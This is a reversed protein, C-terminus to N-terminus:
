REQRWAVWDERDDPDCATMDLLFEQLETVTQFAKLNLTEIYGGEAAYVGWVGPGVDGDRCELRLDHFAVVDGYQYRGHFLERLYDVTDWQGETPALTVKPDKFSV